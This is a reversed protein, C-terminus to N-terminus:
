EKAAITTLVEKVGDRIKRNYANSRQGGLIPKRGNMYLGQLAEVLDELFAITEGIETRNTVAFLGWVDEPDSIVRHAIFKDRIPGYARKFRSTHPTLEKKLYRLDSPNQPAWADAMFTELDKGTIGDAIKRRELSEKSFIDLSGITANVVKHVSHSDGHTDFIRGLVMVLSTQLSYTQANWFLAHKELASRVAQDTLAVCHIEEYTQYIVNVNDVETAFLKLRHWYTSETM